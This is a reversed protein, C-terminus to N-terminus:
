SGQTQPAVELGQSQRRATIRNVLESRGSPLSLNTSQPPQFTGPQQKAGSGPIGNGNAGGPKSAGGGSAQSAMIYPSWEKNDRFNKELDAVTKDSRKGDDGKVYVVPKLPDSTDLGLQARLHPIFMKPSQKNLATAIKLAEGDLMSTELYTNHATNAATLKQEATEAKKNAAAIAASTDSYSDELETVKAEADTARKEAARRRSREADLKAGAKADPGGDLDLVYESGVLSYEAKMEESLTGYVEKSVKYAVAM